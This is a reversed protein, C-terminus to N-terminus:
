FAEEGTMSLDDFIDVEGSLCAVRDECVSTIAGQWHTTVGMESAHPSVVRPSAPDSTEIDQGRM